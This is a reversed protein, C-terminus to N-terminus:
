TDTSREIPAAWPSPTEPLARYTMRFERNMEDAMFAPFEDVFVMVASVSAAFHSMSEALGAVAADFGQAVMVWDTNRFARRAKRIERGRVRRERNM